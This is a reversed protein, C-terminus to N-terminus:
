RESAWEALIHSVESRRYVCIRGRNVYSKGLTLAPQIGRSTLSRVAASGPSVYKKDFDAITRGEFVPISPDAGYRLCADPVLVGGRVLSLIKSPNMGIRDAAEPTSLPDELGTLARLAEKKDFRMASFTPAGPVLGIRKVKGSGLLEWTALTSSRLAHALDHVELMGSSFPDVREFRSVFRDIAQDYAPQSYFPPATDNCAGAEPEIIGAAALYSMEKRADSTSRGMREVLAARTIFPTRGLFMRDAVDVKILTDHLHQGRYAALEPTGVLFARMRDKAVGYHQVADKFTFLRRRKCTRGMLTDGDGYPLNRFCIDTVADVVASLAGQSVAPRMLCVVLEAIVTGAMEGLRVGQRLELFTKELAEIGYGLMEFGAARCAVPDTAEISRAKLLDKGAAQCAQAVWTIAEGDLLPSVTGPLVGIRGLIYRQFDDLKAEERPLHKLGELLGLLEYGLDTDKLSVPLAVHTVLKVDHIACRDVLGVSWEARLYVVQDIPKDPNEALDLDACVPCIRIHRRSITKIPMVEGNLEVWKGDIRRPTWRCMEDFDAGTIASLARLAEPEGHQIGTNDLYFDHCLKKPSPYGFFSCIRGLYGQATERPMYTPCKTFRRSPQIHGTM